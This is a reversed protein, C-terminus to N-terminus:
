PRRYSCPCLLNNLSPDAYFTRSRSFHNLLSFLSRQYFQFCCGRGCNIALSILRPKIIRLYLQSYLSYTLHRKRWLLYFKSSKHLLGALMRRFYWRRMKWKRSSQQRWLNSYLEFNWKSIFFLCIWRFSGFMWSLMWHWWKFSWRMDRSWSYIWGWLHIYLHWSYLYIFIRCLDGGWWLGMWAFSWYM